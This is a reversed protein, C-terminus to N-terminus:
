LNKYYTVKPQAIDFGAKEYARRAPAHAPDGGTGVEARIMGADKMAQLAHLNLTTGIDHNQYGPHVALLMIEGSDPALTLAVFHNEVIDLATEVYVSQVVEGRPGTQETVAVLSCPSTRSTAKSPRCRLGRWLDPMAM